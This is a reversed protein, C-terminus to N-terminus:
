CGGEIIPIVKYAKGDAIEIDLDQRLAGEVVVMQVQDMPIGHAELIERVTKGAETVVLEKAGNEVHRELGGKLLVKGYIKDTSEM